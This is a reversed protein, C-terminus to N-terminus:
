EVAQSKKTHPFSGLITSVEKNKDGCFTSGLAEVILTVVTHAATRVYLADGTTTANYCQSCCGTIYQQEKDEPHGLKLQLTLLADAV